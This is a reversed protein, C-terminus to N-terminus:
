EEPFNRIRLSNSIVTVSSAVMAVAALLPHLLGAAAAALAIGNYGFSCAFNQRIISRTRRSLRILWPIRALNASLILINGSRRALEITGIAIGVPAAALAPADNIGDGVMAATKGSAALAQICALKEEPSRPAEVRDIGLFAAVAAAASHRDGSLLLTSIGQRRLKEICPQADRRIAAACLVRGRVEGEWAVLVETLEEEEASSYPESGAVFRATGATVEREKGEWSVTGRMGSGPVVNVGSVSGPRIGRAQAAARIAQALSHESASELSALWGLLEKDGVASDAVVIKKVEPLQETVTGTKDFVVIETEGVREMVEGGRVVVGSRAARAVALATALPTAIGMTCPCAVVLVALASLGGKVPDGIGTWFIAASIATMLVLPVFLAAAKEAIRETRAPHQLATETMAIIRHLLIQRGVEEVRMMISGAGNVTGARVKEGPGCIRPVPEGTFAAEEIFSNGERISGDAPIREGPRVRLLDGVRVLDIAVERLESGELRLATAPLVNELAHILGAARSKATSEIIKGVTVLLPLMTATDFFIHGGGRLTNVASVFFAALSGGAILSDLSMRGSRIEAIAGKVFPYLLIALAPGALGLMVKRFVPIAVPEAAGSYLLLSIMMVNMALLAGIGFRLLHWAEEGQGMSGVIGAAFRCGHCCFREVAAPRVFPLPLGCHACSNMGTEITSQREM